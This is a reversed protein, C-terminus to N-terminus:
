EQVNAAARGADLARARVAKLNESSSGDAAVIKSDREFQRMNMGMSAAWATFSTFPKDTGPLLLVWKGEIKGVAAWKADGGRLPTCVIRDDERVFSGKGLYPLGIHRLAPQNAPQAPAPPEPEGQVLWADAAHQLGSMSGHLKSLAAHGDFCYTDCVAAQRVEPDGAAAM